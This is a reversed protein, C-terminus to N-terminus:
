ARPCSSPAPAPPFTADPVPALIRDLDRSSPRTQDTRRGPRCLVHAQEFATRSLIIKPFDFCTRVKYSNNSTSCRLPSQHCTIEGLDSIVAADAVEHDREGIKETPL